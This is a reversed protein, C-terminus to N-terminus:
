MSQLLNVIIQWITFAGFVIVCGIIYPIIMAKIEAKEEISGLLFKIGMILGVIVAAIIGVVLLINYLTDSMKMLDTPQIKDNANTEGKSIFADAGEIIDGASTSDARGGCAPCPVHGGGVRGTGGCTPCTAAYVQTFITFMMIAIFLISIIKINKKM